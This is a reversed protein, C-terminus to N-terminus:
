APLPNLDPRCTTCPVYGAAEARERAGFLTLEALPRSLLSGCTPV